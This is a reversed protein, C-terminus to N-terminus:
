KKKIKLIFHVEVDHVEVDVECRSAEASTIFRWMWRAARFRFPASAESGSDNQMAAANTRLKGNSPRTRQMRHAMRHQM